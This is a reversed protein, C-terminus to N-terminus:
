SQKMYEPQSQNPHFLNPKRWKKKIKAPKPAPSYTENFLAKIPNLLKDKFTYDECSKLYLTLPLFIILSLGLIIALAKISFFFLKNTKM